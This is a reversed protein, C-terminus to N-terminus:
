LLHTNVSTDGAQKKILPHPLNFSPDHRLVMGSRYVRRPKQIALINEGEEGVVYATVDPDKDNIPLAGDPLQEVLFTKRGVSSYDRRTRLPQTMSAALKARGSPTKVYEGIIRQKVANSVNSM